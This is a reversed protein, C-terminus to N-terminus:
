SNPKQTKVWHLNGNALDSYYWVTGNGSTVWARHEFGENSAIFDPPTPYHDIIGGPPKTPNDNLGILFFLYASLGGLLKLFNRRTLTM